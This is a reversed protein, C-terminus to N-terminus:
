PSQIPFSKMPPSSTNPLGAALSWSKGFCRAAGGASAQFVPLRVMRVSGMIIIITTTTTTTNTVITITISYYYHYHYPYRYHHNATGLASRRGYVFIHMHICM